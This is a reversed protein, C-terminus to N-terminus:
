GICTRRIVATPEYSAQLQQDEHLDAGPLNDILRNLCDARKLVEQALNQVQNAWAADTAVPKQVTVPEESGPQAVTGGRNGKVERSFQILRLSDFMSLALNDVAEQMASVEDKEEEM